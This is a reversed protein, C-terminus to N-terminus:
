FNRENHVEELNLNDWVCAGYFRRVDLDEVYRKPKCPLVNFLDSFISEAVSVAKGALEGRNIEVIYAPDRHAHIKNRLEKLDEFEKTEQYAKIREKIKHIDKEFLYEIITFLNCFTFFDNRFTSFLNYHRLIAVTWANERMIDFFECDISDQGGRFLEGDIKHYISVNKRFLLYDRYVTNYFTHFGYESYGVVEIQKLEKNIVTEYYSFDNELVDGKYTITEGIQLFRRNSRKWKSYNLPKNGNKQNKVHSKKM